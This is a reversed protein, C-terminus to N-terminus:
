TEKPHPPAILQPRLRRRLVVPGDPLTDLTIEVSLRRQALDHPRRWNNASAVVRYEIGKRNMASVPWTPPLNKWLGSHREWTKEERADHHLNRLRFWSREMLRTSPRFVTVEHSYANRFELRIILVLHLTAGPPEMDPRTEIASEVRVLRCDLGRLSHRRFVQYSGGALAVGAVAIRWSWPLDVPVYNPWIDAALALIEFFVGIWVVATGSLARLFSGLTRLERLM